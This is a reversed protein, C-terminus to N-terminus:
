FTIPSYYNSHIDNEASHKIFNHQVDLCSSRCCKFHTYDVIIASKGPADFLKAVHEQRHKRLIDQFTELCAKSQKLIFNLLKTNKEADDFTRRITRAM